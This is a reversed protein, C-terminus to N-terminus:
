AAGPAPFVQLYLRVGGGEEWDLGWCPPAPPPEPPLCALAWGWQWPRPLPVVPGGSALWAKGSSPNPGRGTEQGQPPPDPKQFTPSLVVHKLNRRGLHWSGGEPRRDGGLTLLPSYCAGKVQGAGAGDCCASGARSSAVDEWTVDKIGWGFSSSSPNLSLAASGKVTSLGEM